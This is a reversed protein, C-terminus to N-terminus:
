RGMLLEAPQLGPVFWPSRYATSSDVSVVSFTAEFDRSRKEFKQGTSPNILGNNSVRQCKLNRSFTESSLQTCLCKTHLQIRIKKSDGLALKGKKIQTAFYREM